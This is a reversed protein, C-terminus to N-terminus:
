IRDVGGAEALRISTAIDADSLLRRPFVWTQQSADYLILVRDDCSYGVFLRWPIGTAPQDGLGVNIGDARFAHCRTERPAPVTWM